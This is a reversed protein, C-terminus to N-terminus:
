MSPVADYLPQVADRDPRFSKNAQREMRRWGSVGLAASGIAGLFGLPLLV